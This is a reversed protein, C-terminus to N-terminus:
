GVAFTVAAGDVGMAPFGWKGYILLYNGFFGIPLLLLQAVMMPRSRGTAECFFRLVLYVCVAPMSWSTIALYGDVLPIVEPDVRMVRMVHGIVRMVPIGSYGCDAGALTGAPLM